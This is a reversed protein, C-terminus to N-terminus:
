EVGYEIRRKRKRRTLRGNPWPYLEETQVSQLLIDLVKASLVVDQPLPHPTLAHKLPKARKHLKLFLPPHGKPDLLSIVGRTPPRERLFRNLGERKLFRTKM